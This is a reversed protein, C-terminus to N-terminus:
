KRVILRGSLEIDYGLAQSVAALMDWSPARYRGRFLDSITPQTLKALCALEMQTLGSEKWAARLEVALARRLEREIM